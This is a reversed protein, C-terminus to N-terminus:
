YANRKALPYQEPELSALIDAIRRGANGDGYPHRMPHCGHHMATRLAIEIRGFDWDSARIVNPPSERGLQRTGVNVAPVLLAACEILGASSNGVIARARRLVGVFERRPMHPRVTCGHTEKIATMIHERGPDHNPHLVLVKEPSSACRMCLRLLREANAFEDDPPSGEPHLLFVVEPQNLAAYEADDIPEIAALDDIAPSGVLHVHMPSEGMSLIREVSTATAAFHIHALKTIAHRMSEDAIGPARDGGHVHAVRIGAVVAASAAAFAEIRDGLVLVIDPPGGSATAFREAFGTIGRGLAIADAMRPTLSTQGNVQMPITAAIEFEAAIDDLTRDDDPGPLLHTGTALVELSLETHHRVHHMVSRLLGFEARTGTVISVVRPTRV